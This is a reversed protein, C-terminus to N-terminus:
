TSGLEKGVSEQVQPLEEGSPVVQILVWVRHGFRQGFPVTLCWHSVHRGINEPARLDM